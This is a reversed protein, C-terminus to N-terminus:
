TFLQHLFQGMLLHARQSNIPHYKVGLKLDDAEPNTFGHITQGFTHLQWDANLSKMEAQFENVQSVPVMPDEYGHLALVKTRTSKKSLKYNPAMLLGHLSVVGLIDDHDNRAIDLVCLGGFCFGIAAIRKNDVYELNKVAELAQNIRNLILSRDEMFPQMLQSNEDINQGRNGKGYLDMAFGVYGSEALLNAQNKEFNGLWGWAHAILVTPRPTQNQADYAVFGEFRSSESGYEFIKNEM